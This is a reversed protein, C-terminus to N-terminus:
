RSANIKEKLKNIKDFRFDTLLRFYSDEIWHYTPNILGNIKVYNPFIISIKSVIYVDGLVLNIQEKICVLKDGVKIM